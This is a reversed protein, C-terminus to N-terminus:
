GDSAFGIINEMSVGMESFSDLVSKYLREATAGDATNGPMKSLERLNWFQSVVKGNGSDFFRVAICLSKTSSVDTSEDILVSFKTSKLLHALEERHAKGIVNTTICSTKTRKLQIQQAIKSDPFVSKLLASLHDNALYAINHEAM